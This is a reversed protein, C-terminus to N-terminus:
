EKILGAGWTGKKENTTRGQKQSMTSHECSSEASEKVFALFALM